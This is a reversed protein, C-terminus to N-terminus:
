GIRIPQVHLCRKGFHVSSGTSNPPSRRYKARILTNAAVGNHRYTMIVSGGFGPAVVGSVWTLMAEAAWTDSAATSGVDYSAFGVNTSGNDGHGRIVSNITILYDGARPITFDPGVTTLDSYSTATTTQFTEVVSRAPTGGIFEWKYSSSSNANYRFMWQYTPNTTSDVYIHMDGDVPNTPLSTGYSPISRLINMVYNDLGEKTLTHVVEAGASHAAATTGEVGRVVTLTDNSRATCLMIEDDVTVRFNGVSPFRAGEGSLVTLTTQTSDMASALKSDALNKLQEVTSM